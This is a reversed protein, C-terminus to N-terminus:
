RIIIEALKRGVGNKSLAFAASGCVGTDQFAVWNASLSDFSKVTIVDLDLYMGGYKYLALYKIMGALSQLCWNKNIEIIQSPLLNELPTDKVFEVINVRYFHVNNKKKLLKYITSQLFLESPPGMFFVNVDWNPNAKAASEIACAERSDLGRKCSTEHFFIQKPSSFSYNNANPLKHSKQLHCALEDTYATYFILIPRKQLVLVINVTLTIAIFMYLIQKHVFKPTVTANMVSM